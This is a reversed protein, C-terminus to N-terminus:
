QQQHVRDLSPCVFLFCDQSGMGAFTEHHPRFAIHRGTSEQWWRRIGERDLYASRSTIADVTQKFPDRGPENGIWGPEALGNGKATPMDFL